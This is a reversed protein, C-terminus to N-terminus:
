EDEGKAEIETPPVVTLRGASIDIDPVSARTFPVLLSAGRAPAVELIDGAGFNQVAVITGLPTGAPDTVQLGVLDAHYFEDAEPAPLSARDVSLSLGNLAEAANRDDVGKFKVVVVGKSPRLREIQFARGDEALLTGYAALAAPDTTFSRVRVEGRIGQAAGITALTVRPRADPM